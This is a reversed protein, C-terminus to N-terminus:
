KKFAASEVVISIKNTTKSCGQFSTLTAKYSGNSKVTIFQSNANPIVVGYKKWVYSYGPSASLTVSDGPCFNVPGNAVIIGPVIEGDTVVISDSM